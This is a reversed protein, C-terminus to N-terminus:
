RGTNETNMGGLRRLIDPVPNFFEIGAELRWAGGGGLDKTWRVLAEAAPAASEPFAISVHMGLCLDEATRIKLGLSSADVAQAPLWRGDPPICFAIPADVAVRPARRRAEEEGGRGEKLLKADYASRRDPDRLTEYAVNILKALDEDGGLDPHARLAHMWARYVASVIEAPAKPTIGLVEYHTRPHTM